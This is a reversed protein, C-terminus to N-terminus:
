AGLSATMFCAIPMTRGAFEEDLDFEIDGEIQFGHRAYVRRGMLSGEVAADTIGRRRAEDLGWKVLASGVGRRQFDPLTACQDLVMVAPFDADRRSNVFAVRHKIVSRWIQRCYRQETEDGPYMGELDMKEAPDPSILSGHGEVATAQVWIAVGVIKRRNPTEPDPLTAKLFITSPNGKKDTATSTAEWRKTMRKIEAARGVPTQWDPVTIDWLPEHTQTGFAASLCDHAEPFDEASTIVEVTLADDNKEPSAM